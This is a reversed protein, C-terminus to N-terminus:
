GGEQILDSHMDCFVEQIQRFNLHTYKLQASDGSQWYQCCLERKHQPALKIEAVTQSYISVSCENNFLCCYYNSFM